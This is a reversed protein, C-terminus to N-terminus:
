SVNRAQRLRLFGPDLPPKADWGPWPHSPAGRSRGVSGRRTDLRTEGGLLGGLQRSALPVAGGSSRSGPCADLVDGWGRQFDGGGVYGDPSEACSVGPRARAGPRSSAGANPENAPAGVPLRPTELVRIASFM